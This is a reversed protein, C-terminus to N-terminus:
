SIETCLHVTIKFIITIKKTIRLSSINKSYYTIQKFFRESYVKILQKNVDMKKRNMWSKDHGVFLFEVTRPIEVPLNQRLILYRLNSFNTLCDLDKFSVAEMIVTEINGMAENLVSTTQKTLDFGTFLTFRKVNDPMLSSCSKKTKISLSQFDFNGKLAACRKFDFPSFQITLIELNTYHKINEMAIVFSKFNEIELTVKTLLGCIPLSYLSEIEQICNPKKVILPAFLEADVKVKVGKSIGIKAVAIFYEKIKKEKWETVNIMLVPNHRKALAGIVVSLKESKKSVKDYDELCILGSIVLIHFKPFGDFINEYTHEGPLSYNIFCNLSMEIRKVNEHELFRLVHLIVENDICFNIWLKLITANKRLRLGLAMERAVRRYFVLKKSKPINDTFNDMNYAVHNNQFLAEGVFGNANCLLKYSREHTCFLAYALEETDVRPNYNKNKEIKLDHIDDFVELNKKVFNSEFNLALQRCTLSLSYLDTFSPIVEILEKRVLGNNLVSLFTPPKKTDM